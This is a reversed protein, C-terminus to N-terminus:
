RAARHLEGGTPATLAAEPVKPGSGPAKARQTPSQVQSLASGVRPVALLPGAMATTVVAMVVMMSYIDGGILGLELGVTLIVIETLGRVNMLVSLPLAEERPMGALRAGGYVGAAKTLVAVAILVVLALLATGGFGDMTVKSGAIVFYLPLLLAGAQDAGRIVWARLPELGARPMAAGFAFAGFIYHVGMWETVACSLLLGAALLPLLSPPPTSGDAYSKLLRALRPRVVAILVVLYVPLLALQWQGASGCLATVAALAVWALLDGVAAASLAVGGLPLRNLGRDALIRALVPFATISMAIGMFLVFGTSSGTAYHRALPIAVLTGGILPVLVSGAAVGITTRKRGRLLAHDLEYGVVFMFLALGVAALAGLLPTVDPPLLVQRVSDPLVLPGVVIGAVIEGLVAPQGLRIAVAGALKAVGLLVALTLFFHVTTEGNM